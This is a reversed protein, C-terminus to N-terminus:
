WFSDRLSFTVCVNELRGHRAFCELLGFPDAVHMSYVLELCHNVISQPARGLVLDVLAVNGAKVAMVLLSTEPDASRSANPGTELLREYIHSCRGSPVLFPFLKRSDVRAGLSIWECLLSDMSPFPYLPELSDQGNLVYPMRAVLADMVEFHALSWQSQEACTM